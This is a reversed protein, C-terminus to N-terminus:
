EAARAADFQLKALRAYLENRQVLEAHRGEAVIRGEDMVVIRDAKLVTALRHAIILTTRGKMVRDLALQVARESEADLASTAEDLLLIAPNRLIARAIAIRQRQGGSLRVGKEGLQSAFGEPLADIFERAAATEAARRIEDEGAEPRGFRINEAVSGSFIVPEQPVLALRQRFEAPDAEPLAVGDVLVRGQQPDYFRYLLQFVTTKGAGSPGVLAVTEGPKVALSFDRLASRDPRAPYTFSVREFALSGQPPQPLPKPRPPAKIRPETNLLQLLREAAGAARQLDSHFEALAGVASAALIAYFLFATLQGATIRGALLDNGGIWLVLGVAAFVAFFVCAFFLARARIRRMAAAFAEAVRGEFRMREAGEQTFAQVIRMGSLTEDIQAGVDGIRDQTMRSLRRVKRGFVIAPLVVLPVVLAALGTLKPSTVAMLIVAGAFMLVNRAAMSASSGLITQLLTTDNTLRSVVEGTPTTEFFAPELRLVNAFVARQIDAAVREGIWNVLYARFYTATALLTVIGLMGLLAWDLSRGGNAFGHDVLWRLGIGFALMAISSLVLAAVAGAIKGKYPALFRLLPRIRAIEARPPPPSAATM